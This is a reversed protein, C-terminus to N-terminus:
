DDGVDVTWVFWPFLVSLCAIYALNPSRQLLASNERRFGNISSYLLSSSHVFLLPQVLIQTSCFAVVDM